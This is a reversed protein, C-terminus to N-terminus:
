IEKLVTFSSMVAHNRQQHHNQNKNGQLRSGTKMRYCLFPLPFSDVNSISSILIRFANDKNKNRNRWKEVRGQEWRGLDTVSYFPNFFQMLLEASISQLPWEEISFFIRLSKKKKRYFFLFTNWSLTSYHLDKWQFTESFFLVQSLFIM